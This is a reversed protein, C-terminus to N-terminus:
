TPIARFIKLYLSLFKASINGTQLPISGTSIALNTSHLEYFKFKILFFVRFLKSLYFIYFDGAVVAEFDVQKSFQGNSSQSPLIKNTYNYKEVKAQWFRLKRM